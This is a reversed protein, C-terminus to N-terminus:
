YGWGARQDGIHTVWPSDNRGGWYACRARPDRFLRRGFRRESDAGPPWGLRTLDRRYLSPNCTWFLRHTLWEAGTVPDRLDTFAAPDAEVVGGAAHERGNWPQRRLAIQQLHPNYGLVRVLERLDVPRTFTFDQELHFVFQQPQRAVYRWARNMANSFGLRSGVGIVTAEPFMGRLWARHHDDGSDDHIVTRAIIDGCLMDAASDLTNALYDGRGDAMVLLLVSERLM